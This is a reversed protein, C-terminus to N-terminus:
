ISSKNREQATPWETKEKVAIRNFGPSYWVSVISWEAMVCRHSPRTKLGPTYAANACDSSGPLGRWLIRRPLFLGCPKLRKQNLAYFALIKAFLRIGNLAVKWLAWSGMISNTESISKKFFIRIYTMYIFCGVVSVIFFNNKKKGQELAGKYNLWGFGVLCAAEVMESKCM